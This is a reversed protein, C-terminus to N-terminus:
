ELGLLSALLCALSLSLSYSSQASHDFEGMEDEDLRGLREPINSTVSNMFHKLTLALYREAYGREVDSM